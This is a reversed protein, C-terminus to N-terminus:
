CGDRLLQRIRLTRDVVCLGADDIRAETSAVTICFDGCQLGCLRTFTQESVQTGGNQNGGLV